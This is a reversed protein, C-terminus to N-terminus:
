SKLGILSWTPHPGSIEYAGPPASFLFKKNTTIKENMKEM